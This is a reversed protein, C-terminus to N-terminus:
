KLPSSPLPTLASAGAPIVPHETLTLKRMEELVLQNVIVKSM